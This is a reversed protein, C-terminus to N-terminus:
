ASYWFFVVLFIGIKTRVGISAYRPGREERPAPMGNGDELSRLNKQDSGQLFRLDITGM